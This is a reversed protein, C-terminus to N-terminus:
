FLKCINLFCFGLFYLYYGHLLMSYSGPNIYAFVTSHCINFPMKFILGAKSCIKSEACFPCVSIFVELVFLSCLSKSCLISKSENLYSYVTSTM